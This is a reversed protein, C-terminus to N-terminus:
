KVNVRLTYKATESSSNHLEIGYTAGDPLYSEWHTSPEDTMEMYGSPDAGYELVRFKVSKNTAVLDVTMLQDSKAVQLTYTKWSSRQDAPSGVLGAIAGTMVASSQGKKFHVPEFPATQPIAGAVLASFGALSFLFLTTVVAGRRTM